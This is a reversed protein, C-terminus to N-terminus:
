PWKPCLDYWLGQNVLSVMYNVTWVPVSKLVFPASNLILSNPHGNCLFFLYYINVLIHLFPFVQISNTSIYVPVVVIDFLISTGWSILFLIVMHDRLGVEALSLTLWETTDSGKCGWAIWWDGREMSNELCSYQLLKGNGEGPSRGSGPISGLDGASCVSEKGDSGGPFGFLILIKFCWRYEQTLQLM